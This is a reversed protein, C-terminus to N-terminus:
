QYKHAEKIGQITAEDFGKQYSKELQNQEMEKAKHFLVNNPHITKDILEYKILQEILWEVATM